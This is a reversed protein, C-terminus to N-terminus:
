RFGDRIARTVPEEGADRSPYPNPYSPLCHTGARCLVPWALFFLLTGAPLMYRIGTNWQLLAFQNASSFLYLAVVAAVLFWAERPRLRTRDSGTWPYAAAALLLAVVALVVTLRTMGTGSSRGPARPLLNVRAPAAPSGDAIDVIDPRIGWAKAREVAADVEGKPCAVLEVDLTGSSPKGRGTEM